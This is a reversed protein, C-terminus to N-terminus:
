LQKATEDLLIKAEEVLETVKSGSTTIESLVTQLIEREEKLNMKLMKDRAQSMNTRLASQATRVSIIADSLGTAESAAKEESVSESTYTAEPPSEEVNVPPTQENTQTPVFPLEEPLSQQVNDPLLARINQYVDTEVSAGRELCETLRIEVEEILISAKEDIPQSGSLLDRVKSLDDPLQALRQPTTLLAGLAVRPGFTAILFPSKVWDQLREGGAQVQFARNRRVSLNSRKLFPRRTKVDVAVTSITSSTM